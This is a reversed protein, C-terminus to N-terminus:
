LEERICKEILSVVEKSVIRLRIDELKVENMQLANKHIAAIWKPEAQFGKGDARQGTIQFIGACKEVDYGMVRFLALYSGHALIDPEALFVLTLENEGSFM